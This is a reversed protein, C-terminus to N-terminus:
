PFKGSFSLSAPLIRDSGPREPGPSSGAGLSSGSREPIDILERNAASPLHMCPFDTCQKGTGEYYNVSRRAAFGTADGAGSRAKARLHSMFLFSALSPSEAGHNSDITQNWGEKM